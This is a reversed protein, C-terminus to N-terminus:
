NFVLQRGTEDLYYYFGLLLKFHCHEVYLDYIFCANFIVFGGAPVVSGIRALAMLALVIM